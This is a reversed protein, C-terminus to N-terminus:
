GGRHIVSASRYKYGQEGRRRDFWYSAAMAAFRMFKRDSSAPMISKLSISREAQAPTKKGHFPWTWLDLVALLSYGSM